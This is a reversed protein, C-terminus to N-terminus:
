EGPKLYKAYWALYREIRDKQFSPRGIGHPEGPYVILQTPVGLGRLAQYLQEGGAVPVNFDRDGGMFLTPTTIQDAHLFPYSIKLWANLDKWPPGIEQDYQQIYQDTGYFSLPFGTGAGSTAAKFRHDRAITADTLIGGYSWGGIGLHGPDALGTAVVYDAAALIDIVEKNGWDGAIVTQYKEGRGAGGRYNVTVVVYGNAAFIQREFNFSHADQGNPGGHIRFVAPYKKGPTYDPPKVLLGHVENGDKAKCSYEETEGLRLEALVTDNHHTLQRLAGYELAYIEGPAKDSGSMAVLRGDKGQVLSSVMAPQKLLKEIGGGGASVRAPYEWRDDTVLFLISGDKSFRPSSIGRDLKETLIKPTGGAVSVVALRNMNYEILKVGSGQLLALQTGDASWEPRGRSLSSDVGNYRTLQRPTAGTKAEIVYINSRNFRDADDGEKGVFAIWKGDPSFSPASPEVTDPTIAEAKKTEIDFLYFRPPKQTLYGPGDRKFQYRDVVIPKPPRPTASAPPPTDPENPDRDAMTLLLRKSDPSWEYDSLRGTVNTLQQAEGGDRDLIWVQAGRAKGPRSSLFSLYRGDPSWRPANENEPSSTLRMQRTGDWNVMWVDTDRKDATVDVSTLTYAVWKGDPSPQPDRVDYFCHMDEVKLPRRAPSQSLLLSVSLLAAALYHTTSRTM